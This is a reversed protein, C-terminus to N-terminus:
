IIEKGSKDIYSYKGNKKVLALGEHFNRAYDYRCPIIKKGNKDIYGYYNKFVLAMGESFEHCIDYSCEIISNGNEDIYFYNHLSKVLALGESFVDGHLYKCKIVEKGNKDCYGILQNKSILLRNQFFINMAFSIPVKYYNNIKELNDELLEPLLLATKKSDSSVIKGNELEFIYIEKLELM